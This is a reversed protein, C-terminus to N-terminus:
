YMALANQVSCDEDTFGNFCKCLGSDYDCLGRNSCVANEQTGKVGTTGIVLPLTDSGGVKLTYYGARISGIPTHATNPDTADGVKSKFENYVPLQGIMSALPDVGAKTAVMLVNNVMNALTNDTTAGHALLALYFKDTAQKVSGCVTGTATALEVESAVVAGARCAELESVGPKALEANIKTNAESSGIHAVLKGATQSDSFAGSIRELVMESGASNISTITGSATITPSAWPTVVSLEYVVDGETLAVVGCAGGATCAPDSATYATGGNLTIVDVATASTDYGLTAFSWATPVCAATDGCGDVEVYFLAPERFKGNDDTETRIGNTTTASPDPTKVSYLVGLDAIDGSNSIFTVSWM